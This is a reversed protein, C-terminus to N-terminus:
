TENALHLNLHGGTGDLVIFECRYAGPRLDEFVCRGDVTLQSEVEVEDMFLLTQTQALPLNRALDYLVVSIRHHGGPGHDVEVRCRISGFVKEVVISGPQTTKGARLLATSPMWPAYLVDGTTQCASYAGSVIKIVINMVQMEWGERVTKRVQQDLALPITRCGEAEYGATVERFLRVLTRCDPCQDLHRGIAAQEQAPLMNQVWCEVMEDSLCASIYGSNMEDAKM